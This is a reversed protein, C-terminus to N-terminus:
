SAGGQSASLIADLKAVLKEYNAATEDSRCRELQRNIEHRINILDERSLAPLPSASNLFSLVVERNNAIWDDDSELYGDPNDDDLPRRPKIAMRWVWHPQGSMRDKCRNKM